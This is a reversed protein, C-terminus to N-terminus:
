VIPANIKKLAEQEMFYHISADLHNARVRITGIDETSAIIIPEKPVYAVCVDRVTPNAERTEGASPLACNSNLVQLCQYSHRQLYILFVFLRMYLTCPVQRIQSHVIKRYRAIHHLLEQLM